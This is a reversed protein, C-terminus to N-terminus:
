LIFYFNMALAPHLKEVDKGGLGAIDTISQTQLHM